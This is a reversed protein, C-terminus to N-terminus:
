GTMIRFGEYTGQYATRGAFVLDTNFIEPGTPPVARASFGMPHINQSFTFTSVAEIHGGARVLPASLVFAMVVAAVFAVRRM